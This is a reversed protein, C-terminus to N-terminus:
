ITQLDKDQKVYNNRFLFNIPTVLSFFFLLFYLYLHFTMEHDLSM